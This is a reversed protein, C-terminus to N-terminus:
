TMDQGKNYILESVGAGVWVVDQCSYETDLLWLLM